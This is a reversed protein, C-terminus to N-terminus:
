LLVEFVRAADLVMAEYGIWGQGTARVAKDGVIRTEEEPPVRGWESKEVCGGELWITGRREPYAGRLVAAATAPTGYCGEGGGLIYRQGHATEAHTAAWFIVRAVDRVDVHYGYGAPGPPPACGSLLSHIFRTTAPIQSSTPPPFLPPGATWVPHLATASFGPDRREVFDWFAREAAVKSATYVTVVPAAPGLERVAEEAETNWDAETFVGGHAFSRIAAISSMLVFSRIGTGGDEEGRGEASAPSEGERVASELISLTGQVATGMIYEVDTEAGAAANLVVPTALHAISRVGRVAADFAAPATIDPVNTLELDGAAISSALHASLSQASPSSLSRVTGRVRWGAALFAAVTRAGIYGNAGTVLVLPAPSPM